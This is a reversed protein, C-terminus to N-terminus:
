KRIIESIGYVIKAAEQRTIENRPMFKNEDTGSIIGKQALYTVADAAYDAIDTEDAFTVNVNGGNDTLGVSKLANYAIVAFDQRTIKMGSGFKNDGMGNILGNEVASAVYAYAWDDSSIDDFAATASENKVELLEVLMKVAEERKLLDLPRFNGDEPISLIGSDMLGTVYPYSWSDTPLDTLNYKDTDTSVDAGNNEDVVEDKADPTSVASPIVITNMPDKKPTGGGGGGNGGGGGSTTKAAVTVSFSKQLTLNRDAHKITATLVVTQVSSQQKVVGDTGIIDHNSSQWTIDSNNQGKIPLVLNGTVNSLDSGISLAEFDAMAPEKTVSVSASYSYETSQPEVKAYPKVGYAVKCNADDNTLTYTDGTAGEIKTYVGNDEVKFWQKETKATDEDDDNEDFYVYMGTLTDGPYVVETSKEITVSDCRPATPIDSVRRKIPGAAASIRSEGNTPLVEFKLYGGEKDDTVTYKDSTEGDIVTYTGDKESSYYWKFTANGSNQGDSLNRLTYKGEATTGVRIKDPTIAISPVVVEPLTNGHSLVYETKTKSNSSTLVATYGSLIEDDDSLVNGSYDKIEITPTSTSTYLDAKLSGVTMGNPINKISKGSRSYTISENKVGLIESCSEPSLYAQFESLTANSFHYIYARIYRASVPKSLVYETVTEKTFAYPEIELDKYDIGNDSIEIKSLSNMEVALFVLKDFTITRGADFSYTLDSQGGWTQNGRNNVIFDTVGNISDNYIANRKNDCDVTAYALGNEPMCYIRSDMKAESGGSPTVTFTIFKGYDEPQIVYTSGVADPISTYGSGFTESRKWQIVTNTEQSGDTNQYTYHAYLTSGISTDNAWIRMTDADVSPASAGTNAVVKGYSLSINNKGEATTVVCFIYKNAEDATLTYTTDSGSALLEFKSDSSKIEQENARYWKYTCNSESAGGSYDANVTLTAGVVASTDSSLYIHEVRPTETQAAGSEASAFGAFANLLM